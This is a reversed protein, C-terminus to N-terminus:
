PAPQQKPEEPKSEEPRAKEPAPDQVREWVIVRPPLPDDKLMGHVELFRNEHIRYIFSQPPERAVQGAGAGATILRNFFNFVRVQGLEITFDSAHGYLPKGAANFATLTTSNGKHEKVFTVPGEPTAQQRTWRGQVEAVARAQEADDGRAAAGDLFALGAWALLVCGRVVTILCRM